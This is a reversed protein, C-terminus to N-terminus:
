DTVLPAKLTVFGDITISGEFEVIRLLALTISSKGAGTRGVIGIREGGRISMSIGHLVNPLNPRYRMSVSRFEIAGRQPWDQPPKKEPIEHPAEQAIHSYQDVAHL